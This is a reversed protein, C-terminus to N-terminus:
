VAGARRGQRRAFRAVGRRLRSEVLPEAGVLGTVVLDRDGGKLFGCLAAGIAFAEEGPEIEGPDEGVVAAGAGIM